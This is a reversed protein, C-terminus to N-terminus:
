VDIVPMDGYGYQHHGHRDLSTVTMNQFVSNTELFSTGTNDKLGDLEEMLVSNDIATFSIVENKKSATLVFDHTGKRVKKLFYWYTFIWILLIIICLIITLVLALEM